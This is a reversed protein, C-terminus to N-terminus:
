DHPKDGETRAQRAEIRRLLEALVARKAEWEPRTMALLIVDHFEGGKFIHERLVGEQCFGFREHLALVTRNSALVECCLKHLGLQDFVHELVAYEVFGGLAKGRANPDALYFAWSARRHRLDLDTLCALGVDEGEHVIIWYRKRPDQLTGAFWREHEEVAITHDTYMYRAVEPRNRWAHVTEKDSPTMPRLVNM